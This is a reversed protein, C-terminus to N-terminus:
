LGCSILRDRLTQVLSGDYRQNRAVFVEARQATAWRFVKLGAVSAIAAGGVKLATRRTPQSLELQHSDTPNPNMARYEGYSQSPHSETADM